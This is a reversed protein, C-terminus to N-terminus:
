VIQGSQPAAITEVMKAFNVVHRGPSLLGLSYDPQIIHSPVANFASPGGSLIVVEGVRCHLISYGVQGEGQKMSVEACLLATARLAEMTQEAETKVQEVPKDEM